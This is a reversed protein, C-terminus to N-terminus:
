DLSYINFNGKFTVLNAYYLGEAPFIANTTVQQWNPIFEMNPQGQSDLVAQQESYFCMHVQNQNIANNLFKKWQNNIGYVWTHPLVVNVKPDRLYVILFM